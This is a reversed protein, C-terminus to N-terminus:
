TVSVNFFDNVMGKSIQWAFSLIDGPTLNGKSEDDEGDSAEGESMGKNGEGNEEKPKSSQPSPLNEVTEGDGKGTICTDAYICENRITKYVPFYITLWSIWCLRRYRDLNRNMRQSQLNSLMYLEKRIVLQVQLVIINCLLHAAYWTLRGGVPISSSLKEIVKGHICFATSCRRVSVM